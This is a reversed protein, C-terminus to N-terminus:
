QPLLEDCLAAHVIGITGSSVRCLFAIGEVADRFAPPLETTMTLLELLAIASRTLRLATVCADEVSGNLCDM